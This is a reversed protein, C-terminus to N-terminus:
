YLNTEWNQLSSMLPNDTSQLSRSRAQDFSMQRMGREGAHDRFLQLAAILDLCLVELPRGDGPLGTPRDRTTVMLSGKGGVLRRIFQGLARAKKEAESTSAELSALLTEYYDLILLMQSAKFAAIDERERAAPSLTGAHQGLVWKALCAVVEEKSHLRELSLGLIGDPFRWAFRSAAERALASKGMGGPGVLTLVKAGQKLRRGIEALEQRRGQFAAAESIETDFEQRVMTEQIEATGPEVRFRAFGRVLSTYLVPIGMVYDKLNDSDDSAALALRAQRVAEEVSHGQALFRYFFRALQLAAVDPVSFQMGLAYPLGEIALTYALNSISTGLSTASECANLLVLFAYGRVRHALEQTTVGRGLGTEDEFLLIAGQQTAKGYGIFHVITQRGRPALAELLADLTPPAVISARYPAQAEQLAKKLHDVEKAIDLQDISRGNSLLPDSPLVVL